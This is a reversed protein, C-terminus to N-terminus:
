TAKNRSTESLWCLGSDFNQARKRRDRRNFYNGGEEETRVWAVVVCCLSFTTIPEIMHHSILMLINKTLNSLIVWAIM